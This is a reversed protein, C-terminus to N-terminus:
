DSPYLHVLQFNELVAIPWKPMGFTKGFGKSDLSLTCFMILQETGTIYARWFYTVSQVVGVTTREDLREWYCEMGRAFINRSDWPCLRMSYIKGLIKKTSVSRQVACAGQSNEETM